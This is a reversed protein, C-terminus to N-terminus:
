NAPHVPPNMGKGLTNTRVHVYYRSQLEIGCVVVKAMVDRPSGGPPYFSFSFRYLKLKRSAFKSDCSFIM